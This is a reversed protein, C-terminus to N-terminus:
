ERCLTGLDDFAAQLHQTWALTEAGHRQRFVHNAVATRGLPTLTLRLERANWAAVQKRM